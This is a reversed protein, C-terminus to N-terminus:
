NDEKSEDEVEEVDKFFKVVRGCETCRPQGKGENVFESDYMWGSESYINERTVTQRVKYTRVKGCKPCLIM